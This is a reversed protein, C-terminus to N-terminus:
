ITYLNGVSNWASAEPLEEAIAFMARWGTCHSPVILKPKLRAIEKVSPAIREEFAKGALHFGGFVAYVKEVETIHQIYSITNIIGAHACGSIIVLGKGKVKVVIARDDLILPDPQWAGDVYFSHRDLGREFSTERPIEGTVCVMGEAVLSPQKTRLVHAPSLEAETPFSTFKQITGDSYATGRTRLMDEHVIIPLSTKSIAKVVSKLGGFHDYHGHSLVVCGVESLAIGMRKANEVLAEPGSGTDFLVCESEEEDFVRLLMSFGHEALPFQTHTSLWEQGHRDKAWQGFPKVQKHVNVSLFDVSNDVLSVIEVRDIEKIKVRKPM